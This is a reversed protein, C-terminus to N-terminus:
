KNRQYVLVDFSKGEDNHIMIKGNRYSTTKSVSVKVKTTGSKGTSPSLTIFAGIKNAHWSSTSNVTITKSGASYSNFNLPHPSVTLTASPKSFEDDDGCSTFGACLAMGFFAFLLYKKM